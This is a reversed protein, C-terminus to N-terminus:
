APIQKRSILDWAANIQKIRIERLRRDEEDTALDPHWCQRLANVTKKLAMESASANVGLFAYAELRTTIVELAAPHASFSTRAADAIEIIRQTGRLSLALESRIRIWDEDDGSAARSKSTLGVSRRISNLEAYLATQLAPAAKLSNVASMAKVLDRTIQKMLERCAQAADGGDDPEAAPEEEPPPFSRSRFPVALMFSMWKWWMLAALIMVLVTTVLLAYALASLVPGAFGESPRTASTGAPQEENAARVDDREAPPAVKATDTAQDGGSLPMAPQQAAAGPPPEVAASAPADAEPKAPEPKAPEPKAPEPKAQEPKAQEPKAQEPKAPEPKPPEPKAPELKPAQPPAAAEAPPKAGAADSEAQPMPSAALPLIQAGIEDVPAFETEALLIPVEWPELGGRLLTERRAPAPANLIQGAILRWSVQKGGCLVNFRHVEWNRCRRLLDPACIRITKHAREGVIVFMQESPSPALVVRNADHTCSMPLRVAESAALATTECCILAAAALSMLRM